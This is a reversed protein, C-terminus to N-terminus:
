REDKAIGAFAYALADGVLVVLAATLMGQFALAAVIPLGIVVTNYRIFQIGIGKRLQHRNVSGAIVGVLAIAAFSISLFDATDM